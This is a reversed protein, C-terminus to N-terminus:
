NGDMGVESASDASPKSRAQVFPFPIFMDVTKTWQKILRPFMQLSPDNGVHGVADVFTPEASYHAPILGCLLALM